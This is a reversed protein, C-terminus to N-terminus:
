GRERLYALARNRLSSHDLWSLVTAPVFEVGFLQLGIDVRGFGTFIALIILGILLVLAMVMVRGRFQQALQFEVPEAGLRIPRLKREWYAERSADM